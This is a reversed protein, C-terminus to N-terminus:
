RLTSTFENRNQYIIGSGTLNHRNKYENPIINDNLPMANGNFIYSKFQSHLSNMKNFKFYLFLVDDIPIYISSINDLLKKAGQWNILYGHLFEVGTELIINKNKSSENFMYYGAPTHEWYVKFLITFDPHFTVDDELILTWDRKEDLIKKWITLHSAACGLESKRLYSSSLKLKDLDEQTMKSGDIATFREYNTLGLSDLQNTVYQYRAPQNDMNIIIISLSNLPEMYPGEYYVNTDFFLCIIIVIVIIILIICGYFLEWAM